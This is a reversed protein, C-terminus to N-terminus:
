SNQKFLIKLTLYIEFSIGILIILSSINIQSFFVTPITTQIYKSVYLFFCLSVGSLFSSAKVIKELFSTTEDGPAINTITVSSKRLQDAIKKPDWFFSTYFYNFFLICFYYTLNIFETQDQLFFALFSSFFPFFNSALILPFIGAQSIRITLNGNQSTDVKLDEDEVEFLKQQLLIQRASIVKIEFRVIQWWCISIFLIFFFLIELFISPSLFSLSPWSFTTVLSLIINFFIFLSTGNGIGLKDIMGTLWITVLSGTVLCAGIIFYNIWNPEFFYPRISSILFGSQIASILLTVLKKYLSIKQKGGEGEDNQLKELNPVFNVILDVFMSANIYPIIGLSFLTIQSIGGSSYMSLAQVFQNNKQLALTYQEIAEQDLGGLPLLSGFRFVILILLTIGIKELGQRRKQSISFGPFFNRVFQRM